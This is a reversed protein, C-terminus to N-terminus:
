IPYISITNDPAVKLKTEIYQKERGETKTCYYCDVEGFMAVIHKNTDQCIKCEEYEVLVKDIGGLECYKQLFENSPRPLKPIIVSSYKRQKNLLLDNTAIVKKLYQEYNMSKMNHLVVDTAEYIKNNIEDYIYDFKKIQEDNSLFYLSQPSVNYLENKGTEENSMIIINKNNHKHIIAQETPLMVVQSEKKM